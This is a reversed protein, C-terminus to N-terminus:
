RRPSGCHKCILHMQRAHEPGHWTEVWEHRCREYHFRSLVEPGRDRWWVLAFRAASYALVLLISLLALSLALITHTPIQQPM